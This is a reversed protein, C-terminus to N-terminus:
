CIGFQFHIFIYSTNKTAKFNWALNKYKAKFIGMNKQYRQRLRSFEQFNVSIYENSSLHKWENTQKHSIYNLMAYVIM